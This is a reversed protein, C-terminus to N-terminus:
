QGPGEKTTTFRINEAHRIDFNAQEPKTIVKGEIVLNEFTVNSIKHADDYGAVRPPGNPSGPEGIVHPAEVFPEHM